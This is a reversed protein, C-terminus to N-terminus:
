KSPADASTHDHVIAWQGEVRRMLLTFGGSLTEDGRVLRYRGLVLAADDCLPTFTLQEFTLKGMKDRTPYRQRYRELTEQWGRTTQGVATFTLDPSNWYGAMFGEIDGRNWAAQQSDLVPHLENFSLAVPNQVRGACGALGALIALGGFFLGTPHTGLRVRSTRHDRHAM